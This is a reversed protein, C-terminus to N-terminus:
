GRRYPFQSSSFGTKTLEDIQKEKLVETFTNYERYEYQKHTYSGYLHVNRAYSSYGKLHNLLYHAAATEHLKANFENYGLLNKLDHDTPNLNFSNNLEAMNSTLYNLIHIYIEVIILPDTLRVMYGNIYIRVMRAITLQVNIPVQDAIDNRSNNHKLPVGRIKIESDTMTAIQPVICPFLKKFIPSDVDMGKYYSYRKIIEDVNM